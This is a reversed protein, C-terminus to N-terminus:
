DQVQDSPSTAKPGTARIYEDVDVNYIVEEVTFVAWPTGEDMWIAAGVKPITNGDVTEWALVENLWLIKGGGEAARYRMSEMFHLLGTEPDFRIVFRQESDEFPVVLIATDEDVPEWQVRSDTIFIAPLWMSEAWLGLNAGQDVQM